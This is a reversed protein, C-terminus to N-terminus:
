DRTSQGKLPIPTKTSTAGVDSPTPVARLNDGDANVAVLEADNHMLEPM